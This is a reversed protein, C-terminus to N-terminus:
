IGCLDPTITHVAKYNNSKLVENFLNENRTYLEAQNPPLPTSYHWQHFVRPEATIEMQLGLCNIRHLFDNDDFARGDSYREDFGNLKILNKATIASCFHYGRAFHIPHNYWALQGDENAALHERRLLEEALIATNGNGFTTGKDLSLCGFSIYSKDTVKQAYGLVDGVHLCEANQVIIIEPNKLLAYRFGTNWAPDGMIWTKNQMTLIKVEFPYKPLVLEETSGDDVIVVSFENPSYRLFSELTKILQFKRNFYTMVIVTMENAKREM